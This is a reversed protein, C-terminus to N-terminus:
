SEMSVRGNIVAGERIQLEATRINGSVVAGNQIQLKGTTELEGEVTGGVIMQRAKLNGQLQAAPLIVLESELLIDGELRGEIRIPDKGAINGRIRLGPGIHTTGSSVAAPTEGAPSAPQRHETKAKKFWAM